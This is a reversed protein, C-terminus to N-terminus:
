QKKSKKIIANKTLNSNPIIILDGSKTKIRTDVLTVETVRGTVDNVTIVDGAKITSKQHIFIGSIVNPIFDKVSLLIFIGILLIIVGSLINLVDTAIGIHRLAMIISVFYVFYLIFHSIIEAFSIKIGTIERVIVNLRVEKLAKETIRSLIKAVIFGILLIILAVIIRNTFGSFFDTLFRFVIDIYDAMDITNFYTKYLKDDHFVIM